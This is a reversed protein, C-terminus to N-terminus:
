INMSNKQASIGAAFRRGPSRSWGVLMDYTTPYRRPAPKTRRV